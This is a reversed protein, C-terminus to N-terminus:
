LYVTGTIVHFLIALITFSFPGLVSVVFVDFYGERVEVHSYNMLGTVVGNHPLTDLGLCAFSCVRHLAAPNVGLPLFTDAIVPMAISIGGGASAAVGSSITVILAAAILPNGGLNTLSPLLNAYGETSTIIGGFANASAISVLMGMCGSITDQLHGNWEKLSKPLYPFYLILGSIIGLFVGFEVQLGLANVSLLMILIPIVAVILNPTKKDSKDEFVEGQVEEFGIGKAQYKHARHYLYFLYLPFYIVMMAVSVFADAGLTTGLYQSPIYNWIGVTWASGTYLCTAAMYIAIFLRRPLNARKFLAMALPYMTFIQVYASVGAYGLIFCVLMIAFIVYKEGLKGVVTNAITDTVGGIELLKGFISALFMLLFYKAFFNGFAGMYSTLYGEYIDMGSLILVAGGALLTAIPMPIGKIVLISLLIIGLIIIFIQM